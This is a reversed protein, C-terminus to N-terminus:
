LLYRRPPNKYVFLLRIIGGGGGVDSEMDCSQFFQM